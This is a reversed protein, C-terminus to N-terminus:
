EEKYLCLLDHKADIYRILTKRGIGMLMMTYIDKTGYRDEVRKVIAECAAMSDLQDETLEWANCMIIEGDDTIFTNPLNHDKM